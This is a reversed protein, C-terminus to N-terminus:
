RSGSRRRKRHRQEALQRVAIALGDIAAAIQEEPPVEEPGIGRPPRGVLENLDGVVNVGLAEIRAVEAASREAVWEAHYGLRPEDRQALGRKAVLKKVIREYSRPDLEDGAALRRNLQRLVMLSPLGLSPNSPVDLDFGEPDVPVVSAFRRWLEGAPAGSPPVTVVTIADIPVVSSWAEIIRSASQRTWFARGPGPNTVDAVRVGELYGSWELVGRNQISEQWMAPITRALDRVTLVVRLEIGEPLSEVLQRVKVAPRPGLFEMSVVATGPWAAVEAVLARWPGGPSGAPAPPASGDILDKVARVQAPFSDHVFLVDRERLLASNAALVHQVFTTGSKMLGIHLVLRRAM